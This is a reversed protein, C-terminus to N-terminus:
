EGVNYTFDNYRAWIKTHSMLPLLLNPLHKERYFKLQYHDCPEIFIADHQDRSLRRQISKNFMNKGNGTYWIKKVESTVYFLFTYNTLKVHKYTFILHIIQTM